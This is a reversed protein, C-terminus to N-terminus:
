LFYSLCCRRFFFFLVKRVGLFEGRVVNIKLSGVFMCDFSLILYIVGLKLIGCFGEVVFVYEFLVCGGLFGVRGLVWQGM